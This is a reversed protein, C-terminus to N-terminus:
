QGQIWKAADMLSDAVFDAEGSKLATEARRGEGTRVLISSKCGANKGAWLDSAKDGVMFSQAFDIGRKRGADIILRPKPKRCHCDDDPHHFCLEYHDIAAGSPKLLDQLRDHIKPLAEPLILGRGVGSQNSVIILEYGASKLLHLAEAVGPLLKLQDPDALYGPDENITGDRDLFVAKGLKRARKREWHWASSIIEELSNQIRFGLERRALASDAVLRPPDGPRREKEVIKLKIGTVKECAGVIERVSYGNESGLNFAEFRGGIPAALLREMAAGHAAALDWIHIYDRVCTGDATSYDTGFIEVPTGNVAANLVRPILHTEPEHWEGVRSLPEAGCANFYRLAVAQLGRGRALDQMVGEAQLKTEGYPSMPNKPCSENMPATGPDGFIACTSSFIFRTVGCELMTELLAQTQTVNNEFYEAPKKVSEAVLSKAAFHMVCDFREQKLLARVAERDGARAQTFGTVAPLILERHGASLDDLIWVSHGKEILWACAASGVYGAGGVVLVNAM